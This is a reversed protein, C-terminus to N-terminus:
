TFDFLDDQGLDILDDLSNPIEESIEFDNFEIPNLNM